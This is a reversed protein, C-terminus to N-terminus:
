WNAADDADFGYADRMMDRAEILGAKYSAVVDDTAITPIVPKVGFKGHVAEYKTGQTM